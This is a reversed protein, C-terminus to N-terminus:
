RRTVWGGFFGTQLQLKWTGLSTCGRPQIQFATPLASRWIGRPRYFSIERVRYSGPPLKLTFPGRTPIYVTLFRKGQTEEEILWKMDVPQKFGESTEIENWVLRMHGFLLGKGEDDDVPSVPLVTTCGLAVHMVLFICVVVVSHHPFVPNMIERTSIDWAHSWRRLTQKLATWSPENADM